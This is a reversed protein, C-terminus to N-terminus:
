IKFFDARYGLLQGTFKRNLRIQIGCVAVFAKDKNVLYVIFPFCCTSCDNFRRLTAVSLEFVCVKM